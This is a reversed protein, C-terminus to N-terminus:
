ALRRARRQGAGRRVIARALEGTYMADAGEARAAAADRRLRSERASPGTRHAKGREDFYHARFGRRSRIPTATSCSTSGRHFRSAPEALEIAPEFLDAWPLRGHDRHAMELMRMVGPVGVPLGGVDPRAFGRRRAHVDPDRRGFMDPTALLVAEAGDRARTAADIRTMGAATRTTAAADFVLMFAGGGIGSSQPEVLSLVLQVAIAADVASGGSRLIRSRSGLRAPEGRRGHARECQRGGRRGAPSAASLLSGIRGAGLRGLINECGSRADRRDDAPDRAAALEHAALSSPWRAAGEVAPHV